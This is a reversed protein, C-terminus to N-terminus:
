LPRQQWETRLAELLLGAEKSLLKIAAFDPTEALWQFMLADAGFWL